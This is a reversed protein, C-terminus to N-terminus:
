FLGTKVTLNQTASDLREVVAVVLDTDWSQGHVNGICWDMGDISGVEGSHPVVTNVTVPLGDIYMLPEGGEVSVAVHYWQNALISNTNSRWQGGSGPLHQQIFTLEGNDRVYLQLAGQENVWGSVINNRLQSFNYIYINASLTMSPLDVLQPLNGFRIVNPSTSGSTSFDCAIKTYGKKMTYASRVLWTFKIIGGLLIRFKIKQIYYYGDIEYETNKIHILSGVDTNLFTRMLLDSTNAIFSVERLKNRPDKEYEVIKEALNRGVEIDTQYSQQLSANQYDYQNISTENEEINDIQSGVYIGYGRAQMKTLWLKKGSSNKVTYKVNSTSYVASASISSTLNTGNGEKKSNALYDVTALPTIMSDEIVNIPQNTSDKFEGFFTITQNANINIPESLSFLVKSGSTSDDHYKPYSTTVMHNIMGEGYELTLDVMNNDLTVEEYRKLVILGGTSNNIVGGTSNVVVDYDNMGKPITDLKTLGNRHNINEFVLIEGDDKDHKLYIYGGESNAIKSFESYAKTKFNTSDFLVPFISQGVDFNTNPKRPMKNLIVRLTDDARTDLMRSPSTIPFKASYDMWVTVTVKVTNDNDNLTIKDVTGVFRKYSLTDYILVLKIEVGKSWGVMSTSNNPLYKGGDNNLIFSLTGTSALLDLPSNGNIGWEGEIEKIVDGTIDINNAFIHYSSLYAM